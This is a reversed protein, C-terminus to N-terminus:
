SRAVPPNLRTYVDRVGNELRTADATAEFGPVYLMTHSQITDALKAGARQWSLAM